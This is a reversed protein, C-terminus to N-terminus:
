ILLYQVLMLVALGALGAAVDDLMIGFGGGVHRDMWSIPWPKLIDFLRFAIFGAVIWRWDVPMLSMTILFGVIEDWVIAAHDHEGFHAAARDCLYIGVLFMVATLLLYWFLGLQTMALYI